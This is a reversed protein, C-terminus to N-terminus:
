SKRYHIGVMIGKLENIHIFFNHHYVNVTEAESLIIISLVGHTGFSGTIMVIIGQTIGILTATGKKKVLSAGLVLWMMYFGGAVSGGPIFLPGTILHTLPVIIPKTALGLSATLAIIILEYVSFGDLLRKKREMGVENIYNSKLKVDRM